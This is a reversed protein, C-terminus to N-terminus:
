TTQRMGVTEKKTGKAYNTNVWRVYRSGGKDNKTSFPHETEDFNIISRKKEKGTTLKVETGDPLTM